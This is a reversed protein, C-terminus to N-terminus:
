DVDASVLAFARRFISEEAPGRDAGLPTLMDTGADAAWQAGCHVVEVGAIM